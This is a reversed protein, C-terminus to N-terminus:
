TIRMWELTVLGCLAVTMCLMWARDLTSISSEHLCYFSGKFGRCLMSQHIREARASARLFLMGIFYAITKYTHMNTKPRFGRVKAARWLRQYEQEIVFLYRYSMLLLHVMKPPIHLRHLAYGLAAISTSAVLAM